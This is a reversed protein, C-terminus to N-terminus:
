RKAKAYNLALKVNGIRLYLESLNSACTAANWWDQQATYEDLGSQMPQAAESLRGLARLEFGVSNLIFGIWDESLGDVPKHWPLEFFGSLVALDAGMAGLKKLSFRKKGEKFESGTSRM